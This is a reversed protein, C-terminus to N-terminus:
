FGVSMGVLDPDPSSIVHCFALDMLIGDLIWLFGVSMGVLDPDPSSIVHCFALDM